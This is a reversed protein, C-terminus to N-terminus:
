KAQQRENSQGRTKGTQQVMDQGARSETAELGTTIPHSLRREATQQPDRRGHPSQQGEASEVRQSQQLHEHDPLKTRQARDRIRCGNGPTLGQKRNQRNYRRDKGGPKPRPSIPIVPQYRM